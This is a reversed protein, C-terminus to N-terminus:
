SEGPNEDTPPRLIWGPALDILSEASKWDLSLASEAAQLLASVAQQRVPLDARGSKRRRKISEAGQDWKKKEVLKQGEAILKLAKARTSARETSRM